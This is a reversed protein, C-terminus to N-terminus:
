RGPQPIARYLRAALAPDKFVVQSEGRYFSIEGSRVDSVHAVLVGSQDATEAEAETLTGNIEPADAPATQLISGLGPMATAVSGVAVAL